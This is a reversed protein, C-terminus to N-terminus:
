RPTLRMIDDALEFDYGHGDALLEVEDQDPYDAYHPYLDHEEGGGFIRADDVLIVHPRGDAFLAVLEERIPTSRVGIATGPGSYHGDLWVLAPETVVKLVQPLVKISDGHWCRVNTGRFRDVAARYQRKGLEITHLERFHSMLFAPTGGDNTGTEIFTGLQLRTGYELLIERRRHASVEPM